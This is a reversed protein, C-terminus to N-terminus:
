ARLGALPGSGLTPDGFTTDPLGMAQLISVLVQNHSAAQGDLSRGTTWAGGAQGALILGVNKFDHMNSDAIETLAMAATNYLLTQDGEKIAKLRGLLKALCGMYWAQAKIFDQAGSGNLDGYHSMDHHGRAQDTGGPFNFATPSVPHSWQFYLVNSVGCALVQVALDTMIDGIVGFHENKHPAQPYNYDPQPFTLGRMDVQKTCSGAIPGSAASQVRRELERLSELHVDLKQKEVSGLQTQLGKIDDMCLDLISMEAALLKSKTLPDTSSSAGGFINYFAKAPNDEIPSASGPAFYSIHSGTQFNAGVGLRVVPLVVNSKFKEGLYTDISVGGSHNRVGSLIYAAGGEHSGETAYNVNKVLIVDDRVAQLPATMPQFDFKSGTATPHWREKIIGDPFYFFLARKAPTAGFLQQEMLVRSFPLALAANGLYRLLRRRDLEARLSKM